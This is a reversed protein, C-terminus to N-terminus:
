SGFYGRRSQVTVGRQRVRVDLRHWEGKEDASPTFSLVYRHRFRELVRAFATDLDDVKDLRIMEGGTTDALDGIFSEPSKNLTVGYVVADSRKATELAAARTMYSSVEIGDSFVIVLSRTGPSTGALLLACDAADVLPTNRGEAPSMLARDVAALNGTLGSGIVVTDAFRVLAAQETARLGAILHRGAQQLHGLRKGKVSNSADLALVVNVPLDESTLANIRQVAGNDRVEFDAQALGTVPEGNRIVLVDVRVEKVVARFQPVQPLGSVLVGCLVGFLTWRNM